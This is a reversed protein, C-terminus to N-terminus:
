SCIELAPSPVDLLQWLRAVIGSARRVRVPRTSRAVEELVLLGRHDVFGVESFDLDRATAAVTAGIVRRIQDAAIGDIDGTVRLVDEDQETFVQFAPAAITRCRVPHVAALDALRPSPVRGRDFYCLGSVAREAQLADAAAEWTLWAQFQADTTGVLRSNDAVVCLGAYGDALARDLEGEFQERQQRPDAGERYIDAVPLLQLAGRAVLGEVDGLASLWQPRPEEAVFLMREHRRLAASFVAVALDHLERPGDGCWM